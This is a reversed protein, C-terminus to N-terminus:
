TESSVECTMEFVFRKTCNVASNSSNSNTVVLMMIVYCFYVFLV